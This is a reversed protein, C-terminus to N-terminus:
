SNNEAHKALVAKWAKEIAAPQRQLYDDIDNGDILHIRKQSRAAVAKAGKTFHSTTVFHGELFGYHNLAGVFSNMQETGISHRPKYLKAQIGAKQKYRNILIADIGFDGSKGTYQHFTHSNMQGGIILAAAFLEFTRPDLMQLAEHTTLPISYSPKIPQPPVVVRAHAPQMQPPSVVFSLTVLLCLIGGFLSVYAIVPYSSRAVAFLVFLFIVTAFMWTNRM